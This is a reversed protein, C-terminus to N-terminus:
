QHTDALGVVAVEVACSSCHRSPEEAQASMEDAVGHVGSSGKRVPDEDGVEESRHETEDDWSMRRQFHDEHPELAMYLPVIRTM